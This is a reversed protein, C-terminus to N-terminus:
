GCEIASLGSADTEVLCSGPYSAYSPECSADPKSHVWYATLSKGGDSAASSSSSAASDGGAYQSSRM